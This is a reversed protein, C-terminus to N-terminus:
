PYEETKLTHPLKRFNFLDKLLTDVWNVGLIDKVYVLSIKFIATESHQLIPQQYSPNLTNM